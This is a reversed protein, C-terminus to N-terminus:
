AFLSGVVMGLQRQGWEGLFGSDVERLGARVAGMLGRMAQLRECPPTSLWASPESIELAKCVANCLKGFDRHVVAAPIRSHVFVERIDQIVMFTRRWDDDLVFSLCHLKCLLECVQKMIRGFMARAISARVHKAGHHRRGDMTKLLADVVDTMAPHKEAAIVTDVLERLGRRNGRARSLCGVCADCPCPAPIDCACDKKTFCVGCGGGYFCVCEARAGSCRGCREVKKCGCEVVPGFCQDCPPGQARSQIDQLTSLLNAFPRLASNEKKKELMERCRLLEADILPLKSTPMPPSLPPTNKYSM